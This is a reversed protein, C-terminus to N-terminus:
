NSEVKERMNKVGSSRINGGSIAKNNGSNSYKRNSNIGQNLYSYDHNKYYAQNFDYHISIHAYSIGDSCDGYYNYEANNGSTSFSTPQGTIYSIADANHNQITSDSSKCENDAKVLADQPSRTAVSASEAGAAHITSKSQYMKLWQWNPRVAQCMFCQLETAFNDFSCQKCEWSTNSGIPKRSSIENAWIDSDDDRATNSGGGKVNASKSSGGSVTGKWSLCGGCRRKSGPNSVHCKSCEWSPTTKVLTKCDVKTSDLASMPGGPKRKRKGSLILKGDDKLFHTTDNRDDKKNNISHKGGRWRHCVGCRDRFSAIKEGCVCGWSSCQGTCILYRNHHARCFGHSHSQSNKPCGVARCKPAGNSKRQATPHVEFDLKVPTQEATIKPKNQLHEIDIASSSESLEDGREEDNLHPEPDEM